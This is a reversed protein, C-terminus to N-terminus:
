NKLKNKAVVKAVVTADIGSVDASYCLAQGLRHELCGAAAVIADM